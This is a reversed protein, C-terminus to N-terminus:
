QKPEKQRVLEGEEAVEKEKKKKKLNPMPLLDVVPPPPPFLLFLNPGQPTRKRQGKLGIWM